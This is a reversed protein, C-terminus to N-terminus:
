RTPMGAPRDSLKPVPPANAPQEVPVDMEGGVVQVDGAATRRLHPRSKLQNYATQGLWEGNIGIHTYVFARQGVLQLVHLQNHADLQIEPDDGAIIRGLPYTGYIIGAERDSIRAYLVNDKPQRFALLEYERASGENGEAKPVGVTQEWVTRGESIEVGVPASSFYRNMESFFISARVRYLGFDTVPYLEVLNISRKVTQGIPITLSQLQYNPDRPPVLRDEGTFIQFGFWKQADADALTIDRGTLNTITITAIIPEYAMYLRRSVQLGVQLQAHASRTALFIGVLFLCLLAFRRSM